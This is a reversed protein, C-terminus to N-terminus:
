SVTPPYVFLVVAHVLFFLSAPISNEEYQMLFTYYNIKLNYEVPGLKMGGFSTM